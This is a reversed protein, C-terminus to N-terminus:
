NAFVFFVRMSCEVIKIELLQCTFSILRRPHIEIVARTFWENRISTQFVTMFIYRSSCLDFRHAAVHASTPAKEIVATKLATIKSIWLVWVHLLFFFAPRCDRHFTHQKNLRNSYQATRHTRCERRRTVTMKMACCWESHHFTTCTLGTLCYHVTM